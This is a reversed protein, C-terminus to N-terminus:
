TELMLVVLTNWVLPILLWNLNWVRQFSPGFPNRAWLFLQVINSSTDETLNTDMDIGFHNYKKNLGQEKEMEREMEKM